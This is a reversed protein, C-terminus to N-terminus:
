QQQRQQHQQPTLTQISLAHIPGEMANGLSQYILQHQEVRTKGEFQASVVLLDFHRGDSSGLRVLDGPFAAQIRAQVQEIENM